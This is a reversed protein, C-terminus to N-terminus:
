RRLMGTDAFVTKVRECEEPVLSQACAALVADAADAFSAREGLFQTLALYLLQEAKKRGLVRDIGYEAHGPITANFHIGCFDNREACPGVRPSAESTHRPYPRTQVDGAADMFSGRLREPAALDRIGQGSAPHLLVSEGLVWSERNEIVKGFYDSFAENLAGTEGLSILHATNQTIAHTLEHGAIDLAKTYDGTTQGDGDGYALYQGKLSWFANDYRTGAHVGTILTAGKGDVGIRQHVNAFYDLTTRGNRLARAASEDDFPDSTRAAACAAPVMTLPRGNGSVSQCASKVAARCAESGVDSVQGDRLDTLQCGTLAGDDDHRQEVRVGQNRATFVNIAVPADGTVTLRSPLTAVHAGTHADIWVETVDAEDEQGLGGVEDVQVAYILRASDRDSAPLIKLTPRGSALSGSPSVSVALSLASRETVTPRVSLDFRALLDRVREPRRFFFRTDAHFFVQSGVVELGGYFHKFKLTHSRPDRVELDPRLVAAAMGPLALIKSLAERFGPDLARLLDGFPGPFLPVAASATPAGAAILTLALLLTPKLM